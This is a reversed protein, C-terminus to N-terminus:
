DDDSGVRPEGLPPAFKRRNSDEVRGYNVFKVSGILAVERVSSNGVRSQM